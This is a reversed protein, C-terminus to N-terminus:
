YRSVWSLLVITRVKNRIGLITDTARMFLKKESCVTHLYFMGEENMWGTKHVSIQMRPPTNINLKRVGKFIVKPPLKEGNAKAQVRFDSSQSNILDSMDM